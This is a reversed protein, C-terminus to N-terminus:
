AHLDGKGRESVCEATLQTRREELWEVWKGMGEDSRASVAILRPAVPVLKPDGCGCVDCMLHCRWSSGSSCSRTEARSGRRSSVRPASSLPASPSQRTAFTAAGTSRRPRSCWSFYARLWVEDRKSGVGDLPGGVKAMPGTVGGLLGVIVIVGLVRTMM